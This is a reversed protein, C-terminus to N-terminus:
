TPQKCRNGAKIKSTKKPRQREWGILDGFFFAGWRLTFGCKKVIKLFGDFM